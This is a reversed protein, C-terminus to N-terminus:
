YIIQKFFHTQNEFNIELLYIGPSIHSVDMEGRGSFRITQIKKGSLTILSANITKGYRCTFNIKDAAPNPFFSVEQVPANANVSVNLDCVSSDASVCMMLLFILAM